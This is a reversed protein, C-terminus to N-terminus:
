FVRGWLAVVGAVIGGAIAVAIAGVLAQAFHGVLGAARRQGPHGTGVAERLDSPWRLFAAVVGTLGRERLSAEAAEQAALGAAAEASAIVREPPLQEPDRLSMEWNAVPDVDNTIYAANRLTYTGGYRHYSRSAAGAAAAVASRKRQWTENEVKPVLRALSYPDDRTFKSSNLLDVYAERFARILEADRRCRESPKM